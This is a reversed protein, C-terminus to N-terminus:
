YQDFKMWNLFFVRDLQTRICDSYTIKLERAILRRYSYKIIKNDLVQKTIKILM